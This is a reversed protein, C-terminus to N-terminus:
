FKLELKASIQKKFLAGYYFIQKIQKYYVTFDWQSEKEM